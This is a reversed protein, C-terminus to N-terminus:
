IAEMEKFVEDHIKKQIAKGAKRKGMKQSLEEEEKLLDARVKDIKIRAEKTLRMFEDELSLGKEQYEKLDILAIVTGGHIILARDCLKEVTDLAHSSFIVSNGSEAYERMYNKVDLISQPDLGVMPEDLIWLKPEHILAGIISIKQKMGHSYSMIQNNISNKLNFKEVLRDFRGQYEEKPVKYLSAIYSIYESGTLKDYVAHNDPVFGFSRKANFPDDKIDFGCIEIKGATYPIIGTICKITTSKGAGNVGLFGFIEGERVEFSVNRASIYKANKYVKFLNKVKLM